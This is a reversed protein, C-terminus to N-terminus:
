GKSNKKRVVLGVLWIAVCMIAQIALAVGFTGGTIRLTADWDIM